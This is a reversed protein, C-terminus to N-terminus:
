YARSFYPNTRIFATYRIDYEDKGVVETPAVQAAVTMRADARRIEVAHGGFPHRNM